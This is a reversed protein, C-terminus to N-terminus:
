KMLLMKRQQVIGESNMQIVYVGSPCAPCNWVLEHPGPSYLGEGLTTVRRGLIDYVTLTVRSVKPVSFRVTTSPNFPNPYASLIFSSPHPIFDRDGTSLPTDWNIRAIMLRTESSSRETWAVYIRGDPSVAVSADRVAHEGDWWYFVGLEAITGDMHMRGLQIWNSNVWISAFGYDAQFDLDTPRYGPSLSGLVECEGIGSVRYLTNPDAYAIFSGDSLRRFSLPDINCDYACVVDLSESNAGAVGRLLMSWFDWYPGWLAETLVLSTDPAVSVASAFYPGFLQNESPLIGRCYEM